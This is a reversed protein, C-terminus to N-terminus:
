CEWFPIKEFVVAPTDVQERKFLCNTNFIRYLFRVVHIVQCDVESNGKSPDSDAQLAGDEDFWFMDPYSDVAVAEPISGSRKFKSFNLRPSANTFTWSKFAVANINDNVTKNADDTDFSSNQNNNNNSNNNNNNNNNNAITNNTNNSHDNANSNTTDKNTKNESKSNVPLINNNSRDANKSDRTNNKNNASINKNNSSSGSKGHSMSDSNSRKNARHPSLSPSLGREGVVGRASVPRRPNNTWLTIDRHSDLYKALRANLTKGSLYSVPSGANFSSSPSPSPSPMPSNSRTSLPPSTIGSIESFNEFFKIKNLVSNDMRPIRPLEFCSGTDSAAKIDLCLPEKRESSAIPKNEDDEEKNKKAASSSRSLRNPDNDSAPVTKRHSNRKEVQKRSSRVKKRRRAMMSEEVCRPMFRGEEFDERDDSSLTFDLTTDSGELSNDLQSTIVMSIDDETPEFVEEFIGIDQTLIREDDPAILTGEGDTDDLDTDEKHGDEGDNDNESRGSEEESDETTGDESKEGRNSLRAHCSRSRSKDNGAPSSSRLVADSSKDRRLRSELAKSIKGRGRRGSEKGGGEMEGGDGADAKDAKHKSRRFFGQKQKKEKKSAKDSDKSGKSKPPKENREAVAYPKSEFDHDFSDGSDASNSSASPGTNFKARRGRSTNSSPSTPSKLSKPSKPSKPSKGGDCNESPDATGNSSERSYEKGPKGSKSLWRPSKGLPMASNSSSSSSSASTKMLLQQDSMMRRLKKEKASAYSTLDSTSSSHYGPSSSLITSASSSPSSTPPPQASTAGITSHPRVGSSKGPEAHQATCSSSSLATTVGIASHPRVGSSKNSDASSSLNEDSMSSYVASYTYRFSEVREPRAKSKEGKVQKSVAAKGEGMQLASRAKTLKRPHRMTVAADKEDSNENTEEDNDDDETGVGSQDLMAPLSKSSPLYAVTEGLEEAPRGSFDPIPPRTRPLPPPLEFNDDDGYGDGDTIKLKKRKSFSGVLKKKAKQKLNM